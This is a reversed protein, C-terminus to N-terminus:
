RGAWRVFVRGSRREFLETLTFQLLPLAAPQDLVDAVLQTALAAIPTLCSGDLAALLAREAAVRDARREVGRPAADEGPAELVVARAPDDEHAIPAGFFALIGDGMLRAVTGEYHYVPKIMFEFAGNIIETWEEPDLKESMSTYNAVDAFLVTVLKREGEIASRTTLIKDALHKPTYTQPRSYDAEEPEGLAHGCKGCFNFEFPNSSKCQPCITELKAGCKGCFQMQEPNDFHCKPCKM